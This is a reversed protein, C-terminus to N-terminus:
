VLLPGDMFDRFISKKWRTWLPEVGKGRTRVCWLNRFIRFNKAGFFASDADSFGGRGGQGYVASSLGGGGQSRADKISV